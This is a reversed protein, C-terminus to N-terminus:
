VRYRILIQDKITRTKKEAHAMNIFVGVNFSAALIVVVTKLVWNWQAMLWFHILSGALVGVIALASLILYVNFGPLIESGQAIYDSHFSFGDSKARSWKQNMKQELEVLRLGIGNVMSHCYGLWLLMVFLVLAVGVGFLPPIKELYAAFATIGVLVLPPVRLTILANTKAYEFLQKYEELLPEPAQDPM